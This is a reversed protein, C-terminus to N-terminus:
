RLAVSDVQNTTRIPLDNPMAGVVATLIAPDSLILIDDNMLYIMDNGPLM